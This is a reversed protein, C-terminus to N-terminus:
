KRYPKLLELFKPSVEYGLKIARDCHQIALDYQKEQFYAIALNNYVLGLTPNLNIAKKLVAIAKRNNGIVCYARGLNNYIDANDPNLKIARQYLKIAEEDKNLDSSLNGLYYYAYSYGLNHGVAKKCLSIIEKEKGLEGYLKILRHYAPLYDPNNEIAKEYMIIAENKKNLDSYLIGLNFYAEVFNQDIQIAKKYTNIAEEIKGLAKYSNGLNFYAYAYAPEIELAKKFFAAAQEYKGIGNYAGGLNTYIRPSGQTYRLIREYFVVPNKWYDNQKITFYSYYVLLFTFLAIAPIKFRNKKYLFTLISALIIFFGISPLYLWHEAMYANIPFINSVPLLTVFFWSISFFILKSSKKRLALILWFIVILIGFLAKPTTIKFLNSGYEMHLSIPFLLLNLYNTIAVFFGPIRQIFNTFPTTTPLLYKLFTVRLFIYIFSVSLIPLIKKAEIKKKYAHQYLLILLPLIISNERALLALIYSSIMFFRWILRKTDEGKIYCVICLLIFLASLSDSRGSLYTVVETHVPHIIFLIATLFPLLTNESVIYLLWYLVVAALIHLMINTLHYGFVNLKWFAYDLMYTIMQLPRYANYRIGSDAGIDEQFIHPMGSLSKIYSNHEILYADDWIFKVSLSNSYVFLGLVILLIIQLRMVTIKSRNIISM